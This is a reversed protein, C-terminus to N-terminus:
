DLRYFSKASEGRRQMTSMHNKGYTDTKKHCSVCLTRGNNTDWFVEHAKAEQPKSIGTREILDRLSVPYHDVNLQSVDGCQVCKNGDRERIEKRWKRYLILWSIRKALYEVGGFDRDKNWPTHGKKFFSPQGEGFRTRKSNSNNWSTPPPKKGLRMKHGKRFQTKNRICRRSCFKAPRTPRDDKSSFKVGCTQCTKEVYVNYPLGQGM